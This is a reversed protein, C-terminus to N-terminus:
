NNNNRQINHILDAVELVVDLPGLPDLYDPHMVVAKGQIVAFVKEYGDVVVKFSRQQELIGQAHQLWHPSRVGGARANESNMWNIIVEKAFGADKRILQLM